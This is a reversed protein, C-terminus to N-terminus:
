LRAFKGAAGGSVVNAVSADKTSEDAGQVRKKKLNKRERKSLRRKRTNNGGSATGDTQKLVANDTDTM